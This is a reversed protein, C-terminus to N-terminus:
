PKAKMPALTEGRRTYMMEFYEQSADRMKRWWEPHERYWHVTDRLGENLALTPRWGLARLRQASVAYRRDHGPRDVVREILQEDKATLGLIMRVVEINRRREGSGINYVTGAAGKELVTVIATAHDEVWLWEREQGGDGYVPLPESSLANTIMLPIFKEPHQRPGYANCGRTVRIDMRFTHAFSQAFLDGGTKSASYPSRPRLPANEDAEGESVEGYVEDTSVQVLPAVGLARAQELLVAVGYVDTHAFRAPALLSRDVHTEAACNILADAGELAQRVIAPDSIDGQVFEFREHRKLAAVNDGSGAYTLNDLSVVTDGRRLLLECLHSGIFGAGGTVVIRSM